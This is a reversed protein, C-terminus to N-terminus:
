TCASTVEYYATFHRFRRFIQAYGITGWFYRGIIAAYNGSLTQPKRRPKRGDWRPLEIVKSIIRAKM